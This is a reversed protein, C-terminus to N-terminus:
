IIGVAQLLRSLIHAIPAPYDASGFVAVLACIAAASNAFGPPLDEGEGLYMPLVAGLAWLASSLLAAGLVVYWQTADNKALYGGPIAAVLGVVSFTALPGRLPDSAAM